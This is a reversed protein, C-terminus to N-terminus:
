GGDGVPRGSIEIVRAPSLGLAPDAEPGDLRREIFAGLRRGAAVAARGPPIRRAAYRALAEPVPAGEDEALAEALAQADEAAKLVGVGVHPRAVFAADGLLAVRGFAVAESELDYIPQMLFGASREVAEGYPLPLQAAAERRLAEVRAARMLAPPISWAHLRGTDDTLLDALAVGPDVPYYWLFNYRRRGPEASEERGPVPYGVFQSGPLFGFTFRDFVTERFAPSFAEEEVMARWAVYGAYRPLVGPAVLGRVTSRFGDAAVLLDATEVGGDAFRAAVAAGDGELAVLERGAHYRAAPFAARLPNFVRTWATVYQPFRHRAAVRGHLDVATRGEVRVGVARGDGAGACAMIAELEPHHAIGTGRSDLGEAVREFVAVDWGQRLLLNAAFLGGVSGGVVLARRVRRPM